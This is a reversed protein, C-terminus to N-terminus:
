PVQSYVQPVREELAHHITLGNGSFRGVMHPPPACNANPPCDHSIEIAGRAINFRFEGEGRTPNEPQPDGATTIHVSVTRTGVGGEGLRLTDALIRITVDESVYVVAPLPDGAVRELAYTGPLASQELGNSCSLGATFTLLVSGLRIPFAVILRYM